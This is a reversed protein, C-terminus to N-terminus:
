LFSEYSTTIPLSSAKQRKEALHLLNAIDPGLLKLKEILENMSNVQGLGQLRSEVQSHPVTYICM